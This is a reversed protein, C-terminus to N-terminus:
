SSYTQWFFYMTLAVGYVIVLARIFGTPIRTALRAAVYAGTTVGVLAITGHYWDISGAAAFRAVAVLAILSSMYLKLGNAAHINAIGALTLFALLLVGLGANFFGGYVAVGALLLHLLVAGAAKAGRSSGAHAAVFANIRGGFTFLVVAFLMLWPVVLSFQADSVRLLLEAGLYGFVAAVIGYPLLLHKLATMQRRLGIAGSVYGPLAAYTNSANALVPPVGVALLAPFVIFSGGGALTNLAGGVLGALLLLLETVGLPSAGRERWPLHFNGIQAIARAEHNAPHVQAGGRLDLHPSSGACVAPRGDLQGAVAVALRQHLRPPRYDRRCPPCSVGVPPPPAPLTTNLVAGPLDFTSAAVSKRRSASRTTRSSATKAATPLASPMARAAQCAGTRLGDVGQSSAGAARRPSGITFGARSVRCDSM